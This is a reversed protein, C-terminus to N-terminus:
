SANMPNPCKNRQVARLAAKSRNIVISAICASRGRGMILTTVRNTSTETTFERVLDVCVKNDNLYRDTGALQGLPQIEVLLYVLTYM